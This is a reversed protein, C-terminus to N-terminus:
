GLAWWDSRLALASRVQDGTQVLTGGSFVLTVRTVRGGLDGLGNRTFGTFGQFTGRGPYAAEVAARTVTVTWSHYGNGAYADGEDVVAPFDGGATWGGSSSAFETRAVTGRATRRVQGATATVAATTRADEVGFGEYVQCTASDCTTAWTGWRTDGALVYSRAAVAQARVAAAGKGGGLGAWYPSVEKPVIGRLLAETGVENVVASGVSGGTRVHHLSGRYRRGTRCDSLMRAATDGQALASRVEVDTSGTDGLLTWSPSCSATTAAYVRYTTASLRRVSVASWEGGWDGVKLAGAAQTVTLDTGASGVLYVRQTVDAATGMTTGGYYHALIQETAWGHDVAYGLSGWQSMGRGHGWGRGQLTYSAAGTPPPSTTTTTSTTTPPATTTTTTSTTTTTTTSTTTTPPPETCGDQARVAFEPSAALDIALRVDNVSRLRDIWYAVGEADPDRGLVAQHLATVRDTRSEPSFVMDAALSGNTRVAAQDLWWALEDDGPARHLLRDYLERVVGEDTGGAREAFEPAGYILSAIRTVMAGRRLEGTWYALGDADPDRDLARRYLKTVEVSLWEDSAALTQPLQWRPTGADFAGIWTALEGDTPPRDLFVQHARLVLCHDGPAAAATGGPSISAAAAVVAVLLVVALARLRGSM